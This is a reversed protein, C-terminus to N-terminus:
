EKHFGHAGTSNEKSFIMDGSGSTYFIDLPKLKESVSLYYSIYWGESLIKNQASIQRAKVASSLTCNQIDLEAIIKDLEDIAAKKSIIVNNLKTGKPEGPYGNGRLVWNELQIISNLDKQFIYIDCM